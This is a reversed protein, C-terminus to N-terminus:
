RWLSRVCVQDPAGDTAVPPVWGSRALVPFSGCGQVFGAPDRPLRLRHTSEDLCKRLGLCAITIPRRRGPRLKGGAALKATLKMAKSPKATKAPQTATPNYPITMCCCDSRCVFSYIGGMRDSRIGRGRRMSRNFAPRREPWLNVSTDAGAPNPFVVSTACQNRYVSRGAAQSERSLPSLSGIRKKM